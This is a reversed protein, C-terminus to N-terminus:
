EIKTWTQYAASYIDALFALAIIHKDEFVTCIFVMLLPLRFDLMYQSFCLM